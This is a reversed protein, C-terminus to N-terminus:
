ITSKFKDFDAVSKEYAAQAVDQKKRLCALNLAEIDQYFTKAAEADGGVSNMAKRMSYLQRSLETTVESWAKRSIAKPIVNSKLRKESEALIGKQFKIYDASKDKSLSGDNVPQFPSYASYVPLGQDSGYAAGESYSDGNGLLGFISFKAGQAYAANAPASAAGMAAAGAALKGAFERRSSDASMRVASRGFSPTYASAGVLALAVLVAKFM